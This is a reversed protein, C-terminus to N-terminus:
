VKMDSSNSTYISDPFSERLKVKLFLTPGSDFHFRDQLEAM